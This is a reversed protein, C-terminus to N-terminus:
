EDYEDYKDRCQAVWKSDVRDKVKMAKKGGREKATVKEELYEYASLDTDDSEVTDTDYADEQITQHEIVYLRINAPISGRLVGFFKPDYLPADEALTDTRVTIILTNAGILNYMFFEMPSIKGCVKGVEFMTDHRVGTLCTEMSVGAAEYRSWTESWFRDEDDATGELPFRLKPNGNKDFGVCTVPVDDWSVSFGRELSTRFFAPPLDMAPVDETFDDFDDLFDNYEPLKHPETVCSYVRIAKDLTDFRHLKKGKRVNRRLEAKDSLLYSNKDTVVYCKGNAYFIDEVTEGETKVTPIDCISAMLSRVLLPTAGSAVINWAANVVRKYVESSGTPLQMAYGLATYLFDKDFLADCAWLVTEEDEVSEGDIVEFKPWSDANVGTFPDQDAAIAIAGDLIAFNTGNGLTVTAGAISNSICSLMGKLDASAPDLPYVVMDRYSVERGGLTIVTDEPYAEHTQSGLVVTGDGVLKVMGKSGLNRQSKRLIIPHWRERHFVPANERDELKLNELLDLYLQSIRLARAHQLDLIFDPDEYVEAWFSGLWSYLTQANRSADRSELAPYSSESESSIRTKNPKDLNGILLEAM